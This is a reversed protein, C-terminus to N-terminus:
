ICLKCLSTINLLNCFLELPKFIHHSFYLCLTYQYSLSSMVLWPSDHVLTLHFAAPFPTSLGMLHACSQVVDVTPSCAFSLGWSCDYIRQRNAGICVANTPRYTPKSAVTITSPEQQKITFSTQGSRQKALEQGPTQLLYKICVHARM